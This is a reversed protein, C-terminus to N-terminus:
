EDRLANVVGRYEKELELFAPMEKLGKANELEGAKKALTNLGVKEAAKKIKHARKIVMESDKQEIAKRLEDFATDKEFSALKEKLMGIDGGYYELANEWDLGIKGAIAKINM